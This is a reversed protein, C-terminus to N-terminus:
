FWDAMGFSTRQAAAQGSFKTTRLSRLFICHCFFEVRRRSVLMGIIWFLSLFGVLFARYTLCPGQPFMGPM